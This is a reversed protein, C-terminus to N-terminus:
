ETIGGNWDAPNMSEEEYAHAFCENVWEDYEDAAETQLECEWLWERYAAQLEQMNIICETGLPDEKTGVFYMGLDDNTFM